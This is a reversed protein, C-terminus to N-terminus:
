QMGIGAPNMLKKVFKKDDIEFIGGVSGHSKRMEMSKDINFNHPMNKMDFSSMASGFILKGGGASGIGNMKISDPSIKRSGKSFLCNAM